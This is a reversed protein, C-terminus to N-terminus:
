KPDMCCDKADGSKALVAGTRAGTCVKDSVASPPATSHSNTPKMVTEGVDAHGAFGSAHGVEHAVVGGVTGEVMVIKPNATGRGYTGGGGNVDKGTQQGMKLETPVFVQICDSAGAASFLDKEEQTPNNDPSEDLTKYASKKVTTAAKVSYDICCKKWISQAEAFSPATTTNKGDDDAVLVPQICGTLNTAENAAAFKPKAPTAPKVGADLADARDAPAPAVSGGGGGGDGSNANRAHLPVQSFDAQRSRNTAAPPRAECEACGTNKSASGQRPSPRARAHWPRQTEAPLLSAFAM